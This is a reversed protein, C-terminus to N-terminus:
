SHYHYEAFDKTGGYSEQFGQNHCELVYEAWAVLLDWTDSNGIVLADVEDSLALVRESIENDLDIERIDNNDLGAVHKQVALEVAQELEEYTM